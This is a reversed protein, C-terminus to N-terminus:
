KGSSGSVLLAPLYDKAVARERASLHFPLVASQLEAIRKAFSLPVKRFLAIANPLAGAEPATPRARAPWEVCTFGNVTRHTRECRYEARLRASCCGLRSRDGKM